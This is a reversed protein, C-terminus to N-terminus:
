RLGRNAPATGARREPRYDLQSAHTCHGICLEDRQRGIDGDPQHRKRAGALARRPGGVEIRGLVRRQGLREVPQGFGAARRGFGPRQRHQDDRVVQEHVSAHELARVRGDRVHGRQEVRVPDAFDADLGAHGRGRPPRQDGQEALVGVPEAEAAAQGARQGGVARDADRQRFDVVRAQEVGVAGPRPVQEVRGRPNRGGALRLRGGGPGRDDRPTELAVRGIEVLRREAEQGFDRVVGGPERREELLDFLLGPGPGHLLQPARQEVRDLLEDIVQRPFVRGTELRREAVHRRSQGPERRLHDESITPGPEAGPAAWAGSTASSVPRMSLRVSARKM